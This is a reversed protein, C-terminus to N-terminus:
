HSRYRIVQARADAPRLAPSIVGSGTLLVTERRMFFEYGDQVSVYTGSSSRDDLQVKGRHVSVTAHKRSVWSRGIVVDCDPSRGISLTAREGCHQSRDAFHLTVTVEPVIQQHRTRTHGSRHGAAVRHAPRTM